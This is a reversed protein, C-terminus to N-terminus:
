LLTLRQAQTDGCASVGAGGMTQWQYLLYVPVSAQAVWKYNFHKQTPRADRGAMLFM